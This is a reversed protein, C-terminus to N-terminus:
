VTWVFQQHVANGKDLFDMVKNFLSILCLLSREVNDWKETDGRCKSKPNKEWAILTLM